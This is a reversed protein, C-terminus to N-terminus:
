LINWQKTSDAMFIQLPGGTNSNLVIALSGLTIYKPDIKQLDESTDCFHEYLVVNDLAGRKSTVVM